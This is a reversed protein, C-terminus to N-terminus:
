SGVQQVQILGANVMPLITNHLFMGIDGNPVQIPHLINITLLIPSQNGKNELVPMAGNELEHAFFKLELVRGIDSLTDTTFNHKGSLWKTVRSPHQDLAAALSKKSMKKLKMADAIAAALLMQNAIRSAQVPDQQTVFDQILASSYNRAVKM